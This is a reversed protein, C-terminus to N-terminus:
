RLAIQSSAFKKLASSVLKDHSEKAEELLLTREPSRYRMSFTLSKKDSGLDASEFVDYIKIEELYPAKEKQFVTLLESAPVSKSILFSVDMDISPFQFPTGYRLTRPELNLTWEGVFCQGVLDLKKLTRPHLEGFFGVLSRQQRKPHLL